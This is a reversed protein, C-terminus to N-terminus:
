RRDSEVIKRPGQTISFNSFDVRFRSTPLYSLIFVVRYSVRSCLRARALAIRHLSQSRSALAPDLSKSIKRARTQTKALLNLTQNDPTIPIVFLLDCFIPRHGQRACFTPRHLHPISSSSLPIYM